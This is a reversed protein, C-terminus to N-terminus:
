REDRIKMRRSEEKEFLMKPCNGSVRLPAFSQDCLPITQEVNGVTCDQHRARCGLDTSFHNFIFNSANNRTVTKSHQELKHQM